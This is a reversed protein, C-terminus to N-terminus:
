PTPPAPVPQYDPFYKGVKRIIGSLRALDDKNLEETTAYVKSIKILETGMDFFSKQVNGLVAVYESTVRTNYREKLTLAAPLYGPKIVALQVLGVIRDLEEAWALLNEGLKKIGISDAVVPEAM